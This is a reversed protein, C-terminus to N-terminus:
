QPLRALLQEFNKVSEANGAQRAITLGRELTQRAEATRRAEELASGLAYRLDAQDPLALIGRQLVAIADPIRKQKRLVQALTAYLAPTNPAAALGAELAACAAPRFFRRNLRSRTFV